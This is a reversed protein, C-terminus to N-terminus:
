VKRRVAAALGGSYPVGVLLCAMRDFRRTTALAQVPSAGGAAAGQAFAQSKQSPTSANYLYIRCDCLFADTGQRQERWERIKSLAETSQATHPAVSM